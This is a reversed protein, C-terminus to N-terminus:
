SSKPDTATPKKNLNKVRIKTNLGSVYQRNKTIKKQGLDDFDKMGVACFFAGGRDHGNGRTIDDDRMLLNNEPIKEGSIWINRKDSSRM